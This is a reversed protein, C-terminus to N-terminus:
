TVRERFTLLHDRYYEYQKRRAVLEAPLGISLDNVLSDFNDLISVIERQDDLPPVPIPYNKVKQANLNSQSGEGLAKIREYENAVWHFVYRYEAQSPDIQLNCCAQNTTLPIANIAVKAATAGYMAVIVCHAPIWKASSNRLGEETITKGTSWIEVSDVEQTRLWPINGGYYDARESSPTGGSSVKTCVEGLTTWRAENEPFTLLQGRYHAYQSRRAELEAELESFLDLVRVIEAQVDAPPVPVRFQSYTSIWQRAHDQPAYTITQMAFYIYRLNVPQDSKPTLMKMASSKAKFPFDVWKFATTFDDFIVVSAEPSAPYIGDAEDTFGLIFTQGATLVPTTYSDDYDASAVLYKGPQEYDLLDGLRRYEAGDPCLQEILDDIHRM